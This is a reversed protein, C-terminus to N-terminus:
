QIAHYTNLNITIYIPMANIKMFHTHQVVSFIRNRRENGNSHAIFLFWWDVCTCVCAYNTEYVHVSTHFVFIFWELLVRMCEGVLLNRNASNFLSQIFSHIFSHIFLLVVLTIFSLIKSCSVTFTLSNLAALRFRYTDVDKEM